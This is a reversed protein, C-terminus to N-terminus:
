AADEFALLADGGGEAAGVSAGQVHAGGRLGFGFLPGDVVREADVRLRSADALRGDSRGPGPKRANTTGSSYEQRRLGSIRFYRLLVATLSPSTFIRMRPLFRAKRLRITMRHRAHVPLVRLRVHRPQAPRGPRGIPQLWRMMRTSLAVSTNNGDPQSACRLLCLAFFALLGDPVLVLLWPDIPQLSSGFGLSCAAPPIGIVLLRRFSPLVNMDKRHVALLVHRNSGHFRDLFIESQLPVKLGNAPCGM